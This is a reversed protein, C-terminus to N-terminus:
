TKPVCLPESCVISIHWHEPLRRLLYWKTPPPGTVNPALAQTQRNREFRRFAIEFRRDRFDEGVNEADILDASVIFEKIETAIGQERFDEPHPYGFMCTM